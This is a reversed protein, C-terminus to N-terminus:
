TGRRFGSRQRARGPLLTRGGIEHHLHHRSPCALPGSKLCIIARVREPKWCAFNFVFQAGASHGYLTVPLSSLDPRGSKRAFTDIADLLAQGSGKSAVEYAEGAGRLCAAILVLRESDALAQWRPDLLWPRADCDTGGALFLIGLAPHKPLRCSFSAEAFNNSRDPFASYELLQRKAEDSLAPLAFLLLLSFLWAKM